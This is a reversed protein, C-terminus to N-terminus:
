ESAAVAFRVLWTVQLEELEVTADMVGEAPRAVQMVLPSTLMVALRVSLLPVTTLPVVASLQSGGTTEIATLGIVALIAALAWCCNEAMTLLLAFVATVQDTTSGVPPLMVWPPNYVAGLPPPVKWTSAVKFASLEIVASAVTLTDAGGGM